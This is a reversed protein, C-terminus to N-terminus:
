YHGWMQWKVERVKRGQTEPGPMPRTGVGPVSLSVLESGQSPTVGKQM